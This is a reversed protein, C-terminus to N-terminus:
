TYTHTNHKPAHAETDVHAPTVRLHVDRWVLCLVSVCVCVQTHEQTCMTGGVGGGSGGGGYIIM